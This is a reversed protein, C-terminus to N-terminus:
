RSAGETNELDSWDMTPMTKPNAIPPRIPRTAVGPAGTGEAGCPPNTAATSRPSACAAGAERASSSATARTTGAECAGAVVDGVLDGCDVFGAEVFVFTTAGAFAAADVGFGVGRGEFFGAGRGGVGFGAGVGVGAGVGSGVTTVGVGAAVGAGVWGALGFGSLPFFGGFGGFGQDALAGERAPGSRRGSRSRSQCRDSSPTM